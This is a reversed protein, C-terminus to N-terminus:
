MVIMSDSSAGLNAGKMPITLERREIFPSRLMLQSVRKIWPPMAAAIINPHVVEM